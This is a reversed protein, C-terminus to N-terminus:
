RVNQRSGGLYCDEFEEDGGEEEEDDSGFQRIDGAGEFDDDNLSM